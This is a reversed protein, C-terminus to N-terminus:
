KPGRVFGGANIHAFMQMSGDSGAVFTYRNSEGFGGELPLRGDLTFTEPGSPRCVGLGAIVLGGDDTAEVLVGTSTLEAIQAVPIGFYNGTFKSLDIAQEQEVPIPLRGLFHELIAARM